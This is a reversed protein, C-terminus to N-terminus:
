LIFVVSLQQYENLINFILLKKNKYFGALCSEIEAPSTKRFFYNNKDLAM